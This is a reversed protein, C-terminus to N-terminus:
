LRWRCFLVDCMKLVCTHTSHVLITFCTFITLATVEELFATWVAEPLDKRGKTKGYFTRAVLFRERAGEGVRAQDKKFADLNCRCTM